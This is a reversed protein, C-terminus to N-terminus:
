LSSATNPLSVTTYLLYVFLYVLLIFLYFLYVYLYVYLYIFLIPFIIGCIPAIFIRQHRSRRDLQHTEVEAGRNCKGAMKKLVGCVLSDVCNLAHLHVLEQAFPNEHALGDWDGRPSQNFTIVDDESPAIVHDLVNIPLQFFHRREGRGQECSRGYRFAL